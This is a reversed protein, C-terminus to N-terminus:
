PRASKWGKEIVFRRWAEAVEDPGEGPLAAPQEIRVNAGHALVAADQLRHFKALHGKIRLEREAAIRLTGERHRRERAALWDEMEKLVKFGKSAIWAWVAHVLAPLPM